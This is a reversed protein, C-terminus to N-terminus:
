HSGAVQLQPKVAPGGNRETDSTRSSNRASWRFHQIRAGLKSQVEADAYGSQSCGSPPGRTPGLRVMLGFWINATFESPWAGRLDPRPYGSLDRVGTTTIANLTGASLHPLVAQMQSAWSHIGPWSTTAQLGSGRYPVHALDLAFRENMQYGLFHSPTGPSYSSYSLKGPNAEIWAVLEPLTRAPVGPHTVLVLPATVGRILPIFNDLSWKRDRHASPNIETMGQTGVLILSGDAVADVVFRAALNTNGGPKHEVIIVRGLTKAMHDSILRAYGDIAGGAAAPVIVRVPRSSNAQALAHNFASVNLAATLTLTLFALRSM